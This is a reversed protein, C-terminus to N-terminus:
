HKQFGRTKSDHHFHRCQAVAADHRVKWEDREAEVAALRTTLITEAAAYLVSHDPLTWDAGRALAEREAESLRVAPTDADSM